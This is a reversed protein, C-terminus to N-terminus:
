RFKREIFNEITLVILVFLGSLGVVNTVSQLDKSFLSIGVIQIIIAIFISIDYIKKKSIVYYNVLYTIYAFPIYIISYYPLLKEFGTYQGKLIYSSIFPSFIFVLGIFGCLFITLFLLALRNAKKMDESKSLVPLFVTSISLAIYFSAKGIVSVSSYIGSLEPLKSRVIISDINSLITFGSIAPFSHVFSIFFKKTEFKQKEIKIKKKKYFFEFLLLLITFINGAIFAFITGLYNNTIYVIIFGTILKVLTPAIQIVSLYIFNERAQLYAIFVCLFFPFLTMIILYIFDETKEIKLFTKLLPLFILYIILLLISLIFLWKFANKIYNLAENEKDKHVLISLERTIFFQFTNPILTIFLSLVILPYIIGYKEPGLMRQMLIHFVFNLGGVLFNTFSMLSSDFFEKKRFIKLISM